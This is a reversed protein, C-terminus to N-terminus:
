REWHRRKATDWEEVFRNKHETTSRFLYVYRQTRALNFYFRAGFILVSDYFEKWQVRVVSTRARIPPPLGAPDPLDPNLQLIIKANLGVYLAMNENGVFRICQALNNRLNSSTIIRNNPIEIPM